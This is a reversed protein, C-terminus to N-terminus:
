PDSPRGVALGRAAAGVPDGAPPALIGGRAVVGAQIAAVPVDRPPAGRGVGLGAAIGAAEGMGMATATLRSSALAASTASHCRGAVLLNEVGKPVLTGFGIDYPAVVHEVHQGAAANGHRDLRGAGLLVVDARRRSAWVDDETLVAEGVIRRSERAGATPGSQVFYADRFEPMAAQLAEFMAWADARGRTEARTWDAPDTINGPIRTANFYLDHGAFSAIWPGGYNGLKGRAHAEAFVRGVRERFALTFPVSVNVVRWHLSMPQLPENVEYPAGAWAAVDADGTCDVVVRPAIAVLGAKNSVLVAEIRGGNAVVDAVQTHYLVEVGAEALIEDAARKFREPDTRPVVWDPHDTVDKIEGNGTYSLTRPDRGGTVGLRHLMEFVLGGVAPKGTVQDTFGDFASGIVATFFGGAFGMREVLMTTAGSRAAAVAAGIGAPGGGCVLVDPRYRAELRRSYVIEV